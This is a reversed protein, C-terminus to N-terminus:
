FPFIGTTPRLPNPPIGGTTFYSESASASESESKSTRKFDVSTDWSMDGGDVPDLILSLRCRGVFRRNVKLPCDRFISSKMKREDDGESMKM